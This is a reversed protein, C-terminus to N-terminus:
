HRSGTRRAIVANGSIEFHIDTTKELNKLVVEFSDYRNIVGRFVMDRIDEDEYSLEFSYWRRLKRIIDELREGKFNIKGDVWSTYQDTDVEKLAYENKNRDLDFQWSPKMLIDQNDHTISIKGTVLTAHWNKEESYANINFSTGLVTVKENGFHVIFPSSANPQVEFFAEGDIWVERTDGFADPFKMTTESNLWVVTKDPLTISYEGGRPVFLTNLQLMGEPMNEKGVYHTRHTLTDFYLGKEIPFQDIQGQKLLIRDGSSLLLEIDVSQHNFVDSLLPQREGNQEEQNRWMVVTVVLLVVVSALMSWRAIYLKRWRGTHKGIKEWAKKDDWQPSDLQNAAMRIRAQEEKLKEEKM